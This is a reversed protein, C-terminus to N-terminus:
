FTQQKKGSKKIENGFEKFYYKFPLIILYHMTDIKTQIQRIKESTDKGLHNEKAMEALKDM